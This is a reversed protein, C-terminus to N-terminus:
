EPAEAGAMLPMALAAPPQSPEAQKWAVTDVRCGMGGWDCCSHPGANEREAAALALLEEVTLESADIMRIAPAEAMAPGGILMAALLARM